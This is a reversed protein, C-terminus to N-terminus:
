KERLERKSMRFYAKIIAWEDATLLVCPSIDPHIYQTGRGLVSETHACLEDFNKPNYYDIKM